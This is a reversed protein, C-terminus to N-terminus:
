PFQDTRHVACPFRGDNVHGAVEGGLVALLLIREISMVGDTMREGATAAVIGGSACADTVRWGRGGRPPRGLSMALSTAERTDLSVDNM